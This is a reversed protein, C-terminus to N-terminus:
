ADERQKFSDLSEPDGPRDCVRFNFPCTSCNEARADRHAIYGDKYSSAVSRAVATLEREHRELEQPTFRLVTRKHWVRERLAEIVAPDYGGAAEYHEPRVDGQQKSLTGDKNRKPARPATARREDVVVDPIVGTTRWHALAYTLNQWSRGLMLESRPSATFKFEAIGAATLHSGIDHARLGDLTARIRLGRAPSFVIEHERGDIRLPERSSPDAAYDALAVPMFAALRTYDNELAARLSVIEPDHTWIRGAQSDHAEHLYDLMVREAAATDGAVHYVRMAADWASGAELRVHARRPEIPYGIDPHGVYGLLHRTPCRIFAAMESQRIIRPKMRPRTQTSM